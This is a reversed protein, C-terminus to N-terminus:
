FWGWFDFYGYDYYEEEYYYTDEYYGGGYGGGGGYGSTIINVDPAQCTLTAPLFAGMVLGAFLTHKLSRKM